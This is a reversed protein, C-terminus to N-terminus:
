VFAGLGPGARGGTHGLRFSPLVAGGPGGHQL